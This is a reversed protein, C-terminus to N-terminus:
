KRNFDSAGAQAAVGEFEVMTNSHEIFGTIQAELDDVVRNFEARFEEITKQDDLTVQVDGLYGLLEQNVMSMTSAATSQLMLGYSHIIRIADLKNNAMLGSYVEGMEKLAKATDAPNPLAGKAVKLGVLEAEKKMDGYAMAVM